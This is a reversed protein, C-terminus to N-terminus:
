SSKFILPAPRGTGAIRQLLMQQLEVPFCPDAPNPVAADQQVPQAPPPLDM